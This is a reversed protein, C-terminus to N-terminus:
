RLALRRRSASHGCDQFPPAPCRRWCSPRYGHHSKRCAPAAAQPRAPDQEPTQRQPRADPQAPRPPDPCRSTELRRADPKAFWKRSGCIACAVVMARYTMMPISVTSITSRCIPSPRRRRWGVNVAIRTRGCAGARLGRWALVCACTPCFLIELSPADKGARTYSSVPGVVRIREDVFDYAWLTGYRRCLTCNCATIPGPDGELTWHTAGCHCTGTLM